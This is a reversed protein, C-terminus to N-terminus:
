MQSLHEFSSILLIHSSSTFNVNSHVFSQVPHVPSVTSYYNPFVEPDVAYEFPSYDEEKETMLLGIEKEIRTAETENIHPPLFSPAQLEHYLASGQDVILTAEWPGLRQEDGTDWLVELAEWPSQPWDPTSESLAVIRGRYQVVGEGTKELEEDTAKYDATIEMGARWPCKLAKAFLHYPVIFDPVDDWNRIDVSFSHEPNEKHRSVRPVAFDVQMSGSHAHLKWKEPTRLIVLNITAVVSKCRRLEATPPFSFKIDRVTCEVAPYRVNFSNWPLLRDRAPFESLLASHGQPFYVVRDGVQPCYQHATQADSQLWERDVDTGTPVSCKNTNQMKISRKAVVPPRTFNGDMEEIDTNSMKISSKRGRTGKIIQKKNTRKRRAREDDDDSGFIDQINEEDTDASDLDEEDESEQMGRNRETRKLLRNQRSTASSTNDGVRRGSRRVEKSQRSRKSSSRGEDSAEARDWDSDNGDESSSKYATLDDYGHFREQQGPRLDAFTTVRGMSGNSPRTGTGAPWSSKSESPFPATQAKPEIGSQHYPKPQRGNLRNRRFKLYMNDMLKAVKISAEKQGKLLEKMHSESFPDPGTLRTKPQIELPTGDYRCLPGRPADYIPLQTGVDLAFGDPGSFHFTHLLLYLNLLDATM